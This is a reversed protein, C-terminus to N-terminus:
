NTLYLEPWSLALTCTGSGGGGPRTGTLVQSGKELRLFYGGGFTTNLWDKKRPDTALYDMYDGNAFGGTTSNVILTDGNAGNVIQWSTLTGAVSGAVARLGVWRRSENDITVTDPSAGIDLSAAAPTTDLALLASGVWYPFLTRGRVTYVIYGGDGEYAGPEKLGPASSGEATRPTYTPVETVEVHLYRTITAGDSDLRESQLKVVGLCPDFAATLEAWGDRLKAAIDSGALQSVDAEVVLEWGRDPALHASGQDVLADIVEVLKHQRDALRAPDITFNSVTWVAGLPSVRAVADGDFTWTPESM